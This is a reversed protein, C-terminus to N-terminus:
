KQTSTHAATLKTLKMINGSNSYINDLQPVVRCIMKNPMSISITDESHLGDGNAAM